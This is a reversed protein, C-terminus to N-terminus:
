EAYDKVEVDLYYQTIPRAPVLNGIPEMMETSNSYSYSLILNGFKNKTHERAVEELYERDEKTHYNDGILYRYITM